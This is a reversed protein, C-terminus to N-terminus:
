GAAPHDGHFRRVARCPLHRGILDFMILREPSCNSGLTLSHCSYAKHTAPQDEELVAELAKFRLESNHCKALAINLADVLVKASAESIPSM